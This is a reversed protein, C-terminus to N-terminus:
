PKMINELARERADDEKCLALGEQGLPLECVLLGMCAAIFIGTDSSLEWGGQWAGPGVLSHHQPLTKVAVESLLSM